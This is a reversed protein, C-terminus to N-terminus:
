RAPAPAAPRGAPTIYVKREERAIYLHLKELTGIGLEMDATDLSTGDRTPIISGVQTHTPAAREQAASVGRILIAPNSVILGGADLAKFPYRYIKLPANPAGPLETLEPSDERIGFLRAAASFDLVSERNTGLTARIEKGDLTMHLIMEPVTYGSLLRFTLPIVTAASAQWHIVQGECHDTSFLIVQNAAYDLEIDYKALVDGGVVGSIGRAALGGPSVSAPFGQFRIRGVTLAAISAVRNSTRGDVSTLTVNSERTRLGLEAVLEPEVQTMPNAPDFLFRKPVDGVLVPVVPPGGPDRELEILTIPQLAKCAEGALAATSLVTFAAAFSASLAIRM